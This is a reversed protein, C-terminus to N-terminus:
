RLDGQMDQSLAAMDQGADQGFPIMLGAGLGAGRPGGFAAGPWTFASMLCRAFDDLAGTEPKGEHLAENMASEVQGWIQLALNQLQPHLYAAEAARGDLGRPRASLGTPCLREGARILGASSKEDRPAPLARSADGLTGLAALLQGSLRRAQDEGGNRAPVLTVTHSAFDGSEGTAPLLHLRGDRGPEIRASLTMDHFVDYMGFSYPHRLGDVRLVLRGDQLSASLRGKRLSAHVSEGRADFRPIQLDRNSTLTGGSGDLDFWAAPDGSPGRAPSFMAALGPAALKELVLRPSLLLVGPADAPVLGPLIEPTRPAPRGGASCFLAMTGGGRGDGAVTYDAGSPQSWHCVPQELKAARGTRAAQPRLHIEAFLHSFDGFHGGKNLWRDLLIAAMEPMDGDAECGDYSLGRVLAPVPAIGRAAGLRFQLLEASRQGARRRKRQQVTLRTEVTLVANERALRPEGPLSLSFAPILIALEVMQGRGGTIKWGAVTGEIAARGEPEAESWAFGSPFAARRAIAENLADFGAAVAFDWGAASTGSAAERNHRSDLMM